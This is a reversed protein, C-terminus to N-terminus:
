RGRDLQFALRYPGGLIKQKAGVFKVGAELRDGDRVEAHILFYSRDCRVDM